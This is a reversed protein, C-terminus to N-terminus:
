GNMIEETPTPTMIINYWRDYREKQLALIQEDTLRDYADQTMILSDKYIYPAEGMEFKFSILEM